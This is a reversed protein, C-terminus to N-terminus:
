SARLARKLLWTDFATVITSRQAHRASNHIAAQREAHEDDKTQLTDPALIKDSHGGSTNMRADFQIAMGLRRAARVLKDGARMTGRASATSEFGVAAAAAELSEGALLHRAAIAVREVSARRREGNAGRGAAAVLAEVRRLLLRPRKARAREFVLRAAKDTRSDDGVLPPLPVASGRLEDAMAPVLEVSQGFGDKAVERVIARWAVAAVTGRVRARMHRANIDRWRALALVGAGAADEKTTDSMQRGDRRMAVALRDALRGCLALDFQGQLEAFNGVAPLGGQLPAVVAPAIAGGFEVCWSIPREMLAASWSQIRQTLSSSGISQACRRARRSVHREVRSVTVAGVNRASWAPFGVSDIEVCAVWAGARARAWYKQNSNFASPIQGAENQEITMM